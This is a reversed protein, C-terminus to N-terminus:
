QGQNGRRPRARYVTYIPGAGPLPFFLRWGLILTEAFFAAGWAIVGFVAGNPSDLMLTVGGLGAVTLARGAASIAFTLTKREGALLGRFLAAYGWFVIVVFTAMVAPESYAALEDTLGMISKLVWNRSGPYLFLGMVLVSFGVVLYNTFRFLIRM